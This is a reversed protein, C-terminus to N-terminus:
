LVLGYLDGSVVESQDCSSYKRLTASSKDLFSQEESTSTFTISFDEVRKSSVRDTGLRNNAAVGFLQALVLGLDGPLTTFGWDAAIVVTGSVAEDFVISNFWTGNLSGNQKAVFDTRVEGDVTVSVITEFIPTHVTRYGDRATFSRTLTQDTITSCILDELQTQAIALLATFNEVESGTLSRGLLASLLEPTM